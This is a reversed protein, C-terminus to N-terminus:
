KGTNWGSIDEYFGEGMGKKFPKKSGEKSIPMECRRGYRYEGFGQNKGVSM